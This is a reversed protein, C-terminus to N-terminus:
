SWPGATLSNDEAVVGHDVQSVSFETQDDSNTVQSIVIKDKAALYCRIKM